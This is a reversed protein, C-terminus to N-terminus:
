ESGPPYFGIKLYYMRLFLDFLPFLFFLGPAFWVFSIRPADDHVGSADAATSNILLQNFYRLFRWSITITILSFILALMFLFATGVLHVPMPLPQAVKLVGALVLDEKIARRAYFVISGAGTMVTIGWQLVRTWMERLSRIEERLVVERNPKAAALKGSNSSSDPPIIGEM